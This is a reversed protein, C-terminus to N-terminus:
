ARKGTSPSLQLSGLEGNGGLQASSIEFAPVGEAGPAGGPLQVNVTRSSANLVIASIEFSPSFEVTAIHFGATVHVSARGQQSATLQVPATESNSVLQVGSITM